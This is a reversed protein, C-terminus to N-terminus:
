GPGAPSHRRRVPQDLLVRWSGREGARTDGPGARPRGAAARRRACRPSHDLASRPPVRVRHVGATIIGQVRPHPRAARSLVWTSRLYPRSGESRALVSIVAEASGSAIPLSEAHGRIFKRDLRRAAADARALALLRFAPDVGVVRAGHQAALLAANGTGCGVDLVREGPQPAAHHLVTEAAPILEGAIREYQGVSWGM